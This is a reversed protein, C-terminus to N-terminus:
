DKQRPKYGDWTLVYDIYDLGKDTIVHFIGIDVEILGDDVLESIIRDYETASFNGEFDHSFFYWLAGSDLGIESGAIYQLLCKKLTM